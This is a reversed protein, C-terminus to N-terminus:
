LIFNYLKKIQEINQEQSIYTLIGSVLSELHEVKLKKYKIILVDYENEAREQVNLLNLKTKSLKGVKDYIWNLKGDFNYKERVDTKYLHLHTSLGGRVKFVSSREDISLVFSAVDDVSFYHQLIPIDIFKFDNLSVYMYGKLIREKYEVENTKLFDPLYKMVEVFLDLRQNLTEFYSKEIQIDLDFYYTQNDYVVNSFICKAYNEQYDSIKVYFYIEDEILEKIWDERLIFNNLCKNFDKAHFFPIRISPRFDNFIEYIDTNSQLKFSLNLHTDYKNIKLNNKENILNNFIRIKDFIIKEQEKEQQLEQHKKLILESFKEINYIKKEDAPTNFLLQYLKNDIGIKLTEKISSLSKFDKLSLMKRVILYQKDIDSLDLLLIDENKLTADEAFTIIYKVKAEKEISFLFDKYENVHIDVNSKDEKVLVFRSNRIFPTNKDKDLLFDQGCFLKITDLTTLSPSIDYKKFNFLNKFQESLVVLEM